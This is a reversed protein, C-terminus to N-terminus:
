RCIYIRKLLGKEMENSVDDLNRLDPRIERVQRLGNDPDLKTLMLILISLYRKQKLDHQQQGIKRAVRFARKSIRVLYAVWGL